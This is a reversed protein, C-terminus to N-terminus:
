SESGPTKGRPPPLHQLRDIEAAILAGAKVLERVRNDPTRKYWETEFPWHIQGPKTEEYIGYEVEDVSRPNNVVPPQSMVVRQSPLAYCAAAQALEGLVHEQDHEPSWGEVSIQRQREEAILEIGTKM